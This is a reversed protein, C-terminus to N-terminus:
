IERLKMYLQMTLNVQNACETEILKDNKFKHYKKSIENLPLLLNKYKLKLFNSILNLSTYNTGNFKWLNMIDIIKNEWPKDLLSNKLIKPINLNYIMGRKILFPIDYGNINHGVLLGNNVKKFFFTLIEFFKNITEKESNENIIEISRQYKGDVIKINGYTICKIKSFEPMYCAKNIYPDKIDKFSNIELENWINFKENDNKSFEDKNKYETITKINFFLASYLYDQNFIYKYQEM